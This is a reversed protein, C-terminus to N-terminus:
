GCFKTSNESRILAFRRHKQIVTVGELGIEHPTNPISVCGRQGQLDSSRVLWYGGKGLVYREIFWMDWALDEARNLVQGASPLLWFTSQNGPARIEEIILPVLEEVALFVPDGPNDLNRLTALTHPPLPLRRGRQRLAKGSQVRALRSAGIGCSCSAPSADHSAFSAVCSGIRHHELALVSLLILVALVSHVYLFDIFVLMSFTSAALIVLFPGDNGSTESLRWRWVLRRVLLLSSLILLVLWPMFFVFSTIARLGVEQDLVPIARYVVGLLLSRAAAAAPTQGLIIQFSDARFVILYAFLITLPLASVGLLGLSQWPKGDCFRRYAFVLVLSASVFAFVPHLTPSVGLVVGGIIAPLWGAGAGIFCCGPEESLVFFGWRNQAFFRGRKVSHCCDWPGLLCFRYTSDTLM